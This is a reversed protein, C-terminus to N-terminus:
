ELLAEPKTTSADHDSAVRTAPVDPLLVVNDDDEEEHMKVPLALITEIERLDRDQDQLCDMMREMDEVNVRELLEHLNVRAKNLVFAFQECTAADQITDCLLSVNTFQATYKAHRKRVHALRTACSKQMPENQEKQHKELKLKLERMDYELGLRKLTLSQKESELVEITLMPDDEADPVRQYLRPCWRRACSANGGSEDEFPEYM